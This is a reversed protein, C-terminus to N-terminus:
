FSLFKFNWSFKSGAIKKLWMMARAKMFTLRFQTDRGAARSQCGSTGRGTRLLTGIKTRTSVAVSCTSKFKTGSPLSRRHFWEVATPRMTTSWSETKSTWPSHAPSEAASCLFWLALSSSAWFYFSSLHLTSRSLSLPSFTTFNVFIKILRQGSSECNDPLITVWLTVWLMRLVLHRHEDSRYSHVFIRGVTWPSQPLTHRLRSQLPAALTGHSSVTWRMVPFVSSLLFNRTFDWPGCIIKSKVNLPVHLKSRKDM